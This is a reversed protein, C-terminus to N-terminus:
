LVARQMREVTGNMYSVHYAILSVYMVCKPAELWAGCASRLPTASQPSCVGVGPVTASLGGDVQM